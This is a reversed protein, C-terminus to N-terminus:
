TIQEVWISITPPHSAGVNMGLGQPYKCAGSYIATPMLLQSPNSGGWPEPGLGRVALTLTKKHELCPGTTPPSDRGVWGLWGSDTESVV